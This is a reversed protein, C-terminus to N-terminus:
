FPDDDNANRVIDMPAEDYRFELNEFRAYDKIYALRATGIPGNRQKGVIIEGTGETPSKDDYQTIGYVEPRNIFLVVDADQEISGSERLDSLMPRKDSRSEVSRNLQALALVPIDLEKAMQKLSSSIISIERERSEAKPPHLLQLYDIMVMEIKHEAKLRRCKARLEMLPLGPSDDIVLPAKSLHGLDQVIKGMDAQTLQGSRIKQQNIKSEASILRMVLQSSAMEISFFAIPKNYEAAINRAASLAFATKGMSPRAAVIILDSKQFGSLIKDLEKFGSPVGTLDNSDTEVLKAIIDLTDHALKNLTEYSRNFRKEAIEFIEREANDIEELADTTDDYAKTLINGSAKILLRKLYKEQIIRAYYEVNAATPTKANIEALYFAGGIFELQGLKFLEEGLTIIDVSVAKEFMDIVVEFIKKHIESYFSEVDLQEIVKAIASRDLMMAGLVAVEAENSHPPIKNGLTEYSREPNKSIFTGNKKDFVPNKIEKINESAM